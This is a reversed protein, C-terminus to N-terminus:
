FNFLSINKQRLVLFAFLVYHGLFCVQKGEFCLCCSFADHFCFVFSLLVFAAFVFSVLFFLVLLGFVKEPSRM